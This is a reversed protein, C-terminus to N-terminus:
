EQEALEAVTAHRHFTSSDADLSVSGENNSAKGHVRVSGDHQVSPKGIAKRAM